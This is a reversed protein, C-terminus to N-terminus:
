DLANLRTVEQMQPILQASIYRMVCWGKELEDFQTLLYRSVTQDTSKVDLAEPNDLRWTEPDLHWARSHPRASPVEAASGRSRSFINAIWAEWRLLGLGM